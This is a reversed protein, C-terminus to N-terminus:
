VMAFQGSQGVHLPLWPAQSGAQHSKNGEVCYVLPGNAAFQSCFSAAAALSSQRHSSPVSLPLGSFSTFILSPFLSVVCISLFSPTASPTFPHSRSVSMTVILPLLSLSVLPSHSSLPLPFVPPLSLCSLTLSVTLVLSFDTFCLLPQHYPM